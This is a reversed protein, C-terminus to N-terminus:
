VLRPLMDDLDTWWHRRIAVAAAAADEGALADMIARHLAVAVQVHGADASFYHYEYRYIRVRLEEIMRRLEANDCRAYLLRHWAANLRLATPAETARALRANVESMEGLVYPDPLGAWTLALIELEAMVAFLERVERSSLPLVSYGRGPAAAVFGEGELTRLAERVPTRSVDLREALAVETLRSGGPLEGRLIATRIDRAVRIALSERGSAFTGGDQGPVTM